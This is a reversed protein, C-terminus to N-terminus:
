RRSPDSGPPADDSRLRRAGAAPPNLSPAAREPKPSARRKLLTIAPGRRIPAESLPAPGVPDRRRNGSLRLPGGGRIGSEPPARWVERATGPRSERHRETRERVSPRRRRKQRFRPSTAAGPSRARPRSTGQPSGAFASGTRLSPVVCAPRAAARSPVGPIRLPRGVGRPGSPHPSGGSAHPLPPTSRSLPIPAPIQDARRRKAFRRDESTGRDVHGLASRGRLRLV